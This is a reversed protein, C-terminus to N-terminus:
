RPPPKKDKKQEKKQGTEDEDSRRLTPRGPQRVAPAGASQTDHSRPPVLGDPITAGLALMDRTAETADELEYTLDTETLARSEGLLALRELFEAGDKKMRKRVKYLEIGGRDLWMDLHGTADDIARIYDDFRVAIEDYNKEPDRGAKGIKNELKTLRDAAFTLFLQIKRDPDEINRIKEVEAPTLYDIRTQAATPLGTTLMVALAVCGSLLITTRSMPQTMTRQTLQTM